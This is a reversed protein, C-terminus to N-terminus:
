GSRLTDVILTARPLESTGTLYIYMGGLSLGDSKGSGVRERRM